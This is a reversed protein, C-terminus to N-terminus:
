ETKFDKMMKYFRRGLLEKCGGMKKSIALLPSTMSDNPQQARLSTTTRSVIVWTLHSIKFKNSIANSVM